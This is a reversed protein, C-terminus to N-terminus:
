DDMVRRLLEDLDADENKMEAALRKILDKEEVPEPDEPEQYPIPFYFAGRRLIGGSIIDVWERRCIAQPRGEKVSVRGMMTEVPEWVSFETLGKRLLERTKPTIFSDPDLYFEGRPLNATMVTEVCTREDMREGMYTFDERKYQKGGGRARYAEYLKM